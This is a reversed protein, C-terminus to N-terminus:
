KAVNIWKFIYVPSLSLSIKLCRGSYDYVCLVHASAAKLVKRTIIFVQLISTARIPSAVSCSPGLKPQGLRSSVVTARSAEVM